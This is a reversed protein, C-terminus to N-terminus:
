DEVILIEKSYVSSVGFFGLVTESPNNKSVINGKIPAPPRAFTGGGYLLQDELVNIYKYGNESISILEIRVLDGTKLPGWEFQIDNIENGDVLEDSVFTLDEAKNQFEGNIYYKWRYFNKEGAPDKLNQFLYYGEDEFISKEKYKFYLSDIPPVASLTEGESIYEKGEATTIHLIYNHGLELNFSEQYLGDATEEMRFSNGKNDTITVTAGKVRPTSNSDFYPGTLSLKISHLDTDDTFWGDVVLKKEAEPLDLEIVDECSNLFILALILILYHFNKM